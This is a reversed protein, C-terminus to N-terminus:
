EIFHVFQMFRILMVAAEARTVPEKPALSIKTKGRMIGTDVVQEMAPIVGSSILESDTFGALVLDARERLNVSHNTFKLADAFMVAMQERTIAQREEFGV